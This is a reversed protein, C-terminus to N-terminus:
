RVRGIRITAGEPSGEVVFADVIEWDRPILKSVALMRSGGLNVIKYVARREETAMKPFSSQDFPSHASAVMQEMMDPDIERRLIAARMDGSSLRPSPASARGGKGKARNPQKQRPM